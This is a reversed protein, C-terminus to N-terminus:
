FVFVFMFTGDPIMLGNDTYLIYGFRRLFRTANRRPHMINNLVFVPSFVFCFFLPSSHALFVLFSSVHFPVFQITDIFPISSRSHTSYICLYIHTPIIRPFRSHFPSRHVTSHFPPISRIFPLVTSTSHVFPLATSHNFPPITSHFPSRHVSSHNSRM